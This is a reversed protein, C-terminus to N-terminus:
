QPLFTSMMLTVIMLLVLLLSFLPLIYFLIVDVFFSTEGMDEIFVDLQDHLHSLSGNNEIIVDSFQTKEALQIQSALRLSAQELNFGDRLRLRRLQITPSCYILVVQSV